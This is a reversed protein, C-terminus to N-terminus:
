YTTHRLGENLFDAMFKELELLDVQLQLGGAIRKPEVDPAQLLRDNDVVICSEDLTGALSNITFWAQKKKFLRNYQM